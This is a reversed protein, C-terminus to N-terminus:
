GVANCATPVVVFFGIKTKRWKQSTRGNVIAENVSAPLGVLWSSDSLTIQASIAYTGGQVFRIGCYAPVTVATSLTTGGNQNVWVEVNASSFQFAANIRAGLDGAGFQDAFLISEFTKVGVDNFTGNWPAASSGLSQTTNCSSTKSRVLAICHLPFAAPRRREPAWPLMRPKGKRSRNEGQAENRCNLYEVKYARAPTTAASLFLQSLYLNVLPM